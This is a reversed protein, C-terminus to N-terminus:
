LFQELNRSHARGSPFNHVDTERKRWLQPRGNLLVELFGAQLEVRGGYQLDDLEVFGLVGPISGRTEERKQGANRANILTWVRKTDRTNNREDMRGIGKNRRQKKADDYVKKIGIKMDM